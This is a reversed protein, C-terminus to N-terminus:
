LRGSYIANKFKPMLERNQVYIRVGLLEMVRGTKTPSQFKSWTELYICKIFLIKCAFLAPICLFPGHFVVGKPRNFIFFLFFLIFYCLAVPFILARNFLNNKKSIASLSVPLTFLTANGVEKFSRESIMLARRDMGLLRYLRKMQAQHGGEGAVFVLEYKALDYVGIRKCVM